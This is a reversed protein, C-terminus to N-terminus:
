NNISAEQPCCWERSPIIGMFQMLTSFDHHPGFAPLCVSYEHENETSKVTPTCTGAKVEVCVHSYAMHVKSGRFQKKDPHKRVAVSIFQLLDPTLYIPFSWSWTGM